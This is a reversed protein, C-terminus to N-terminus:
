DTFVVSFPPRATIIGALLYVAALAVQDHVGEAQEQRHHDM